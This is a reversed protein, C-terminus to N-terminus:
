DVPMELVESQIGCHQAAIRSVEPMAWFSFHWGRYTAPM